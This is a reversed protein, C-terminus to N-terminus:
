TEQSCSHLTVGYTVPRLLPLLLTKGGSAQPDECALPWPQKLLQPTLISQARPQLPPRSACAVPSVHERAPMTSTSSPSTFPCSSHMADWEMALIEKALSGWTSCTLWQARPELQLPTNREHARGPARHEPSSGRRQGGGTPERHARVGRPRRAAMRQTPRAGARQKSHGARPLVGAERYPGRLTEGYCQGLRPEQEPLHKSSCLSRSEGEMGPAKVAEREAHPRSTERLDTTVHYTVM